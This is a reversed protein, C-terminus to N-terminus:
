ASARATVQRDNFIRVGPIDHTGKTARIFQNIATLNPTLFTVPVRGQAVALALAKVDIAEHAKWNDRYTVGQVKPMLKQVTVVPADIPQELIDHAEQLMAEDGTVAAETELAAAAALTAEEARKRAEEQLQREQERRLEEQKADWALLSRKLAAEAEVLPAEMREREDVLQKRAAEARRKTEMAAEVHPAFWNAIKARFHKVSILLHSANQYSERDVIQLDKARAAWSASETALGNKDPQVMSEM